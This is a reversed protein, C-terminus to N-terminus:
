HRTAAASPPCLPAALLQADRLMQLTADRDSHLLARALVSADAGFGGAAAEEALATIAPSVQWAAVVQGFLRDRRAALADMFDGSWPLAPQAGADLKRLAVTWGASHLMGAMYGDFPDLGAAAALRSCTQAKHETHEWLREGVAASLASSGAQLLPQLVVRAIASQMGLEGLAAIAQPLDRVAGHPAYHASRSLRMVEAVLLLDKSVRDALATLSQDRHRLAGLLQPIVAPARPLMAAVGPGDRLLADVLALADREERRMDGGADAAPPAGLLWAVFDRDTIDIEPRAAAPPRTARVAAAPRASSPQQAKQRWTWPWM